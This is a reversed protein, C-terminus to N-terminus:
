IWKLVLVEALRSLDETSIEVEADQVLEAEAGVELVLEAEVVELGIESGVERGFGSERM